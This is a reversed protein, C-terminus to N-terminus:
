SRQPRFADQLGRHDKEIKKEKSEHLHVCSDGAMSLVFDDAQEGRKGGLAWGEGKARSGGAM